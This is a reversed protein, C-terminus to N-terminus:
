KRNNINKRLKCNVEDLHKNEKITDNLEEQLDYCKSEWETSEATLKNVEEQLNKIVGEYYLTVLFIDEILQEKDIDKYYEQYEKLNKKRIIPDQELIEKELDDTIM